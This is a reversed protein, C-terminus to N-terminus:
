LSKGFDELDGPSELAVMRLSPDIRKVMGTLVKGGFEVTTEAGLSKLALSRFLM